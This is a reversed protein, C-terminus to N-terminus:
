YSVLSCGTGNNNNSATIHFDNKNSSINLAMYSQAFLNYNENVFLFFIAIEFIM